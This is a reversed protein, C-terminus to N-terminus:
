ASVLFQNKLKYLNKKWLFANKEKEDKLFLESVCKQYAYNLNIMPLDLYQKKLFVIVNIKQLKM